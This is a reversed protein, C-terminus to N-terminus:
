ATVLGKLALPYERVRAWPPFEEIDGGKPDRPYVFGCTLCKATSGLTRSIMSQNLDSKEHGCRVNSGLQKVFCAVGAERCQEIISRIWAVDCPRASPGSEGGVIVWDLVPGSYGIAGTGM